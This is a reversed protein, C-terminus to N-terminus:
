LVNKYGEHIEVSNGFHIFYILLFVQAAANVRKGRSVGAVDNGKAM